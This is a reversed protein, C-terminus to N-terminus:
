KALAALQGLNVAAVASKLTDISPASGEAEVLFRKAVLVSYTGSKSQNDWKETVMNGDQLMTKEYGTETQRNSQVNVIGALAGMAGTDAIKLHFSQDGGGFEATADSVNIGIAGGGSSEVSTRSFGAVSGPLLNQLAGPDVVKGNNVTVTGDSKVSAGVSKAAAEIKSTDITTGGVSVTTGPTSGFTAAGPSMAFLAGTLTASVAGIVLFAVVGVLITTITYPVARDEPVKMLMPLGVWFLYISYLGVIGLVALMPILGFIGALWGATGSFAAVKFASIPNKRGGFSPALADIILSWVWVGLVTLAIAVVAEVISGILPPRWTIGFFGYGFVQGGILRAVPGIAALPLVWGTIIAQMSMPEAEIRPWEARPGTLLRKIRDVLGGSPPQGITDKPFESAM